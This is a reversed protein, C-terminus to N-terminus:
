NSVHERSRIITKVVNVLVLRRVGCECGAAMIVGSLYHSLKMIENRLYIIDLATKMSKLLHCTMKEM